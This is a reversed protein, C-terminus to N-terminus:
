SGNGGRTLRYHVNGTCERKSNVCVCMSSLVCVCLSYACLNPSYTPFNSSLDFWKSRENM